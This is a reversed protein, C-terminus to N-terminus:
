TRRQQAPNPLIEVPEKLRAEIAAAPDPYRSIDIFCKEVPYHRGSDAKILRRFLVTVFSCENSSKGRPINSLPMELFSAGNTVRAWQRELRAGITAWEIEGTSSNPLWKPWAQGVSRATFFVIGNAEMMHGVDRQTDRFWVVEHIPLGPDYQGYVQFACPNAETRDFVRPRGVVQKVEDGAAAMHADMNPDPHAERPFHVTDGNAMRATGKGRRLHRTSEDKLDSIREIRVVDPNDFEFATAQDELERLNLQSRGICFEFAVGAFDNLGRVAGFHCTAVNDPLGMKFLLAEADKRIGVLVDKKVGNIVCTGCGRYLEATVWIQKWFEWLLQAPEGTDKNILAYKGFPCEPYFTTHQAGALPLAHTEKLEIRHPLGRFASRLITESSPTADIMWIWTEGFWPPLWPRVMARVVLDDENNTYLQVGVVEERGVIEIAARFARLIKEAIMAVKLLEHAKRITQRAHKKEAGKAGSMLKEAAKEVDKRLRM